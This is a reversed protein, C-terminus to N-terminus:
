KKQSSGYRDYKGYKAYYSSYYRSKVKGAADINPIMGLMNLGLYKEVDEPTKIKDDFMHIMLFIIYTICVAMVPLALHLLGIKSNSPSNGVYGADFISVRDVDFKEEVQQKVTDCITKAILNADKRTNATNTFFIFRTDDFIEIKLDNQLGKVTVNGEFEPNAELSNVVIQLFTPTKLLRTVDNVMYLDVSYDGTGYQPDKNTGSSTSKRIVVLSSEATYKEQYTMIAYSVTLSGVVIGVIMMVIWCKTFVNWLDAISITREHEVNMKDM